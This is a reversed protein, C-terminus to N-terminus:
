AAVTAETNRRLRRRVLGLGARGAAAVGLVTAPEPVPVLEFQGAGIDYFHGGTLPQGAFNVSQLWTAYATNPNATLNNFVIRGDLGPFFHVGVWGAIQLNGASAPDLGNFTLIHDGTGLQIASGTTLLTGATETIGAGGAGGATSLTGNAAITVTGTDPIAGAAGIRVTGGSITTGGGYSNAGGLILAGTGQKTLSGGGTIAGNLTLDNSKNVILTGNNTIPLTTALSGTAGGAGVQVTGASITLGGTFTNAGSLTLNAAGNKVLSLAGGGTGDQIVGAYATDTAGPNTTLTVATANANEVIGGTGALTGVSQSFGNLQVTGGNVTLNSNTGFATASGARLTGATVTTAGTYDNAGSLTLVGTGAKSLSGAGTVLGSVTQAVDQNFALAGANTITQTGAITGTAGAGVTLTGANITIPGTFTNAGSLIQTNTGDKVLGGSGLLAGAFTQTATPNVTLTGSGLDISGNVGGILNTVSQNNNNLNLLATNTGVGVTLATGPLQNAGSGTMTLTGNDVTTSGAYAQAASLVLTGTGSKVFSGTGGQDDMVGGYTLTFTPAVNITGTGTGTTPGLAIGRNTNLTFTGDARLAGGNLVLHGATAAGPVTGIRADSDIALTGGLISTAGGYTNTGSLTTVGGASKTLTGTGSVDNAFTVDNSRSIELNGNNVIAGTIAGTTSNNGIRLSGATITTGGNYANGDGTLILVGSGDKVLSGGTASTIAGAFVGPAANTTNITLAATGLVVSSSVGGSLGTLTQNLDTTDLVTNAGSLNVATVTPLRNAGGILRLTGGSITTTGGTYTQPQSLVLTGAGAKTFNGAGTIVGDYTLTNAAGEVHLTGSQGATTLTIGRNSDLTFGADARLTGNAMQFYNATVAAPNIGLNNNGAVRLIAGNNLTWGGQLGVYTGQGFAATYGLTNDAGLIVTGAGQVTMRRDVATSMVLQTQIDITSNGSLEIISAANNIRIAMDANVENGAVVNRAITLTQNAVTNSLIANNVFGTASQAGDLQLIGNYQGASAGVANNGVTLGAGGNLGFARLTLRGQANAPGTGGISVSAGDGGGDAFNIGIPGAFARAGILATDTALGEQVGARNTDGPFDFLNWNDLLLWNPDTSSSTWTYQAKADSASLGLVAVVTALGMLFPRLRM